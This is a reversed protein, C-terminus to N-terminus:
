IKKYDYYRKISPSLFFVIVIIYDSSLVIKHYVILYYVILVGIAYLMNKLSEVLLDKISKDKFALVFGYISAYILGLIFLACFILYGILLYISYKTIDNMFLVFFLLIITIGIFMYFLVKLTKYIYDDIKKKM